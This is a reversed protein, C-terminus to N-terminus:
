KNSRSVPNISLRVQGALRKMVKADAEGQEQRGLTLLSERVRPNDAAEALLGEQMASPTSYGYGALFANKLAVGPGNADRYAARAVLHAGRHLATETEVDGAGLQVATKTDRFRNTLLAELRAAEPRQPVDVPALSQVAESEKAYRRVNDPVRAELEGYRELASVYSGPGYGPTEPAGGEKIDAAFRRANEPRYLARLAAEETGYAEKARRMLGVSEDIRSAFQGAASESVTGSAGESRHVVDAESRSAGQMRTLQRSFARATSRVSEDAHTRAVNDAASKVERYATERSMASSEESRGVARDILAQTDKFSLAATLGGEAAVGARSFVNGEGGAGAAAGTLAVSGIGGRVGARGGTAVETGESVTDAREFQTGTGYRISEAAGVSASYGTGATRNRAISDRLATAFNRQVADTGSAATSANFSAADIESVTIANQTQYSRARAVTEGTSASVPLSVATRSMGTAPGGEARTVSGYADATTLMGGSKYSVSRDARNASVNGVSTNSLSVNGQQVNGAALTAGQAAAASQAPATLSGVLQGVAMDGARVLAYSIMPVACMLWGAIAQSSAGTERILESAQLSGAGLAAAIQGYPHKDFSVVLFNVVSALAPWLEITLLLMLYSRLIMGMKSACALALLVVIPFCGIIIVELANRIKPLSEEAIKAMSRYNIESALNGQAKALTVALSMPADSREASTKVAAPIANMLLAHQLSEQMSRSLGFLLTEAQPLAKAIEGSPDATGPAFRAGLIRKLAPLEEEQLIRGLETMAAPCHLVSGDPMLATRAPNVWGSASVTGWLNESAALAAAKARDTVIEPVICSEMVGSLAARANATVAGVGQLVELVREPYVAGFKSYRAAQVPSFVTEYETTLWYGIRNMMSGFFAIGLPVNDVTYVAESRIDEILVTSKPVVAAFWFLTCCAFGAILERGEGRTAGAMLIFLAALVLLICALVHFGTSGTILAIANFLDRVIAGNWYAYFTFADM